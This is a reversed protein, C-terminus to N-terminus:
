NLKILRKKIEKIKFSYQILTRGIRRIMEEVIKLKKKLNKLMKGKKLKVIEEIWRKGLSFSRCNTTTLVLIISLALLAFYSRCYMGLLRPLHM